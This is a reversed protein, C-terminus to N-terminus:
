GVVYECVCMRVCVEKVTRHYDFPMLSPRRRGVEMKEFTSEQQKLITPHSTANRPRVLKCVNMTVPFHIEPKGRSSTSLVQGAQTQNEARGGGHGQVLKRVEEPAKYMFSLSFSSGCPHLHSNLLVSLLQHQWSM